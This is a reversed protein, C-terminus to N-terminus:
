YKVIFRLDTEWSPPGQFFEVLHDVAARVKASVFRNAPFLAHIDLPPPLFDTLLPVLRGAALDDHVIFTPAYYLGVGNMAAERLLDGNNSILTGNVAVDLPQGHRVFPWRNGSALLSYSLCNHRGLDDPRAPAGQRELYAPAAVVVRHTHSLRRAILSSDTLRGIRVAIDIGEEVLDVFRDSLGIDVTVEPYKQCFGAMACGLHRTGFSVGASLRLLGKPQRTLATAEATADEVDALIQEARAKFRAGAETLHSRRTTRTLLAVGLDAELDRVLASVASKSTRLRTAAATFGGEEVVAVFARMAALRDM